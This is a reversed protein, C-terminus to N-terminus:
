PNLKLIRQVLDKSGVRLRAFYAGPPVVRGAADRGNWTWAHSGAPLSGMRESRQARGQVDYIGIEVGDEAVPLVFSLRTSARVPNPAPPMLVLMRPADKEEVGVLETCGPQNIAVNDLYWGDKEILPDSYLRFRVQVKRNAYSALDLSAHKWDGPGAVEDAWEPYASQDYRALETWSQGDNATIEVIGFDFGAETICIQDFELSSAPPLIIPVGFTAITNIFCGDLVGHCGAYTGAPSDTFAFLGAAPNVPTIEWSTGETNWLAASGSEFDDEAHCSVHGAFEFAHTRATEQGGIFGSVEYRYLGRNVHDVFEGPAGALAAVKTSDRYVRVSDYGSANLWRVKVEDGSDTTNAATASVTSPAALVATAPREFALLDYEGWDTYPGVHTVRVYYTGAAPAFFDLRADRVTPEEDDNAGLVQGQSSLLEVVPDTTSYSGRAEFGYRKGAEAQFSFVDRDGTGFLTHAEPAPHNASGETAPQASWDSADDTDTGSVDRALNFPADPSAVSGTFALGAPVPTTNENGNADRWRVFDVATGGLNRLVCAGDLGNNWSANFATRDGAYLHHPGNQTAMGGEHVVVAEGAPLSVPPFTYIRTPDNMIGNAYVEIQWGTLDVTAPTANYLEFADTSGLDLENIVVHRDAAVTHAVPTIAHATTRANDSEYADPYFPMRAMTVFVEDVGSKMFSPGNLAFWGQYYDEVTIANGSPVSPLYDHEVHWAYSDDVEVPDDDVGPSADPTSPGDVLDWLATTVNTENTSGRQGLSAGTDGFNGTEFDYSFSLGGPTGVPPPLVLDAYLSVLRDIAQGTLNTHHTARWERVKACHYTASGEGYALRPEANNDGLYHTGGPNDSRSFMDDYWHGTEHLIVTDSWGDTDNNPDAGIFIGQQSYNSGFVPPPNGPTGSWKWAYVLFHEASPLSGSINPLAVWDFFDVGCDFINFAQAVGTGDLDQILYDGFDLPLSPSHLLETSTSISYLMSATLVLGGGTPDRVFNDVVRIQYGAPRGDTICRAFLSVPLTQGTVDIAYRGDAGTFGTALAQQTVANVIEVSAHRIPLNQVAGTYGNGNFLRDEYLFRGSVTFAHAVCPLLAALALAPILRKM